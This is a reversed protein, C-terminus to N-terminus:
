DRAGDANEGAEGYITRIVEELPPDEVSLDHIDTRALLAEIVRQIPAFETAVDLALREGNRELVRVGPLALEFDSRSARLTLRKSRLRRKLQEVSCDLLIRGQHLVIARECVSEIDACDHSTLLLTSGTRRAHARLLERLTSKAVADLGITPEDLFLLEPSHLLSAAVECRMREGLSLTRVPKDLLSALAFAPVLQALRRQYVSDPLEYVRALLEFSDRAPLQYWLQSRQGFVTGTRFGLASRERWPVYGLVRLEGADPRLIGSLMKISTSKGAGNPGIFAVREGPAINFSIHDVALQAHEIPVILDHLRAWAGGPRARRACFSKSLREVRIAPETSM